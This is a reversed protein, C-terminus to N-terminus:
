IHEKPAPKHIQVNPRSAPIAPKHIQVNPKSAPILRAISQRGASRSRMRQRPVNASRVSAASSFKSSNMLEEHGLKNVHVIDNLFPSVRSIEGSAIGSRISRRRMAKRELSVLEEVPENTDIESWLSPVASRIRAGGGDPSSLPVFGQDSSNASMNLDASLGGRSMNVPSALSKAIALQEELQRIKSNLRREEHYFKNELRGNLETSQKLSQELEKTRHQLERKEDEVRFLGMEAESIRTRLKEREQESYGMRKEKEEIMQLLKSCQQTLGHRDLERQESDREKEVLEQRLRDLDKALYEKEEQTIKMTLKLQDRETELSRLRSKLKALELIDLLKGGKTEAEAGQIEMGDGLDSWGASGGSGAGNDPDELLSANQGPSSAASSGSHDMNQQKEDTTPKQQSKRRGEEREKSKSKEGIKDKNFEAVVGLLEDIEAAKETCENKKATMEKQAEGLELKVRELQLQAEKLDQELYKEKNQSQALKNLADSLETEVRQQVSNMKKLEALKTEVSAKLEAVLAQSQELEYGMNKNAQKVKGNEEELDFARKEVSKLSEELAENRKQLHEAANAAEAFQQNIAMNKNAKEIILEQEKLRTICDHLLRHNLPAPGSNSVFLLNVLHIVFATIVFALVILGTDEFHCLPEPLVSRLSAMWEHFMRKLTSPNQSLPQQQPHQTQDSNPFRDDLEQCDEKFCYKQENESKPLDESKLHISDTEKQHDTSPNPQVQPPTQQQNPQIQSPTQQISDTEKLHDTSPNPQVQLPTQQQNPTQQDVTSLNPQVQPPTQQQNPQSQSPTQQISDTEKQHDTSPNPQVQPPTQQQNPQIQSPTQQISDTEKQHDTSPNPQVQLPTQQQNPTQQDVTSPNPQVQPPTQQQNPQSQSPTQQISDTEKQDVTSLNPQVQPPTQQQNPQSQSPTQQISDTEKQDVTSLNPQVQPPTQQQNPQSQSPTQQISDTEKQHDTSPNPQVQPPTQQQNPQIQSPTQQVSDTEKQHDTSPNPQVQPPTQQQNPQIQSPTQQISDTEKQHDTSPNPQVQLPTQQQNPTQQDVTSPNPQVQLPTQQQNPTQQDVISLNPQVQPPTQQQNQQIQSAPNQHQLIQEPQTKPPSNEDRQIPEPQQSPDHSPSSVAQKRELGEDTRMENNTNEDEKKDSKATFLEKSNKQQQQQSNPHHHHHYAKTKKQSEEFKALQAVLDKDLSYNELKNAHNIYMRLLEPVASVEKILKPWDGMREVMYLTQNNKLASELFFVYPTIDIHSDFILGKKGENDEAELIDPRDSFSFAVIKVLANEKAKLFSTDPSDYARVFHSPFLDVKCKPDACLKTKQDTSKTSHILFCLFFVAYFSIRSSETLYHQSNNVRFM